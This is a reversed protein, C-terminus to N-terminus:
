HDICTGDPQLVTGNKPAKSLGVCELHFWSRTCDPGDCGVMNGYSGKNCYCYKEGEAGEEEEEEEEEEEDGQMSSYEEDHAAAQAAALQAAIGAGKKHSRKLPVQDAARAQRSRHNEAFSASIPTTTKSTKGGGRTSISPPRDKSSKRSEVDAEDRKTSRESTRTGMLLGGRLDGAGDGNAVDEILHEGQDNVAEKMSSKIDVSSRGTLSSVERVDTMAIHLGNGNTAKVSTSSSPRRGTDQVGVQTSNQRGRPPQGRQTGIAPSKHPAEKSTFPVSIPSSVLTTTVAAAATANNRRLINTRTLLYLGPGLRRRGIGNTLATARGRKKGGDVMPTDRPSGNAKSGLNSGLTPGREMPVSTAVSPGKEVKRRKTPAAVHGNSIELGAVAGNVALGNDARRGKGTYARKSGVRSDDFDSDLPQNRQKRAAVAERRAESRGAPADLDLHAALNTTALRTRGGEVTSKKDMTRDVLAWHTMSGLRVEDSVENAIYPYSEECRSIQYELREVANQVYLIKEDLPTMMQKLTHNTSALLLRRQETSVAAPATNRLITLTQVVDSPESAHSSPATVSDPADATITEMAEPSSRDERYIKPMKKAHTILQRLHGQNTWLKGDAEKIGQYHRVMEKPLAGIADTFHTLAPCFGPEEDEMEAANEPRVHNSGRAHITNTTSRSPNNRARRAPQRRGTSM